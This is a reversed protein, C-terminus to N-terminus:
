GGARLVCDLLIKYVWLGAICALFFTVPGIWTIFRGVASFGLNKGTLACLGLWLAILPGVGILVPGLPSLLLSDFWKGHAALITARTAGCFPCPVGTLRKLACPEQFWLGLRPASRVLPLVLRATVFMGGALIPGLLCRMRARRSLKDRVCM